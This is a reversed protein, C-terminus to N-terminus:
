RHRGSVAPALRDRFRDGPPRTGYHVGVVGTRRRSRIRWFRRTYM